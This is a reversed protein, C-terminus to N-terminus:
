GDREPIAPSRDMLEEAAFHIADDLSHLELGLATAADNEPLIDGSSLGKSLPLILAPDGGVIETLQRITDDPPEEAMVVFEPELGMAKAMRRMLDGVSVMEPGMLDLSRDSVADSTAANLLGNEMDRVDLPRTLNDRWPPLVVTRQRLLEMTVRFSPSQASLVFWARLAVSAPVADLLIREVEQRSRMHETSRARDTPSPVGFYIIRGVGARQAAEVFFTAARRDRAAFGEENGTELSHILYYAIEVGQLAEDLGEGTAANGRFVPLDLRVKGPDRSLGVVEHGESILKPAIRGGVFGSIGTVLVRV